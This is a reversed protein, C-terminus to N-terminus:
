RLLGSHKWFLPSFHRSQKTCLTSFDTDFSLFLYPCSFSAPHYSTSHSLNLSLHWLYGPLWGPCLCTVLYYDRSPNSLESGAERLRISRLTPPLNPWSSCQHNIQTSPGQLLVKWTDNDRVVMNLCYNQLPVPFGLSYHMCFILTDSTLM